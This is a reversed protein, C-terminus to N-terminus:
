TETLGSGQWGIQVQRVMGEAVLIAGRQGVAGYETCGGTRSGAAGDEVGVAGDEVGAGAGTRVMAAGRRHERTRHLVIRWRDDRLCPHLPNYVLVLLYRLIDDLKDRVIRHDHFFPLIKSM